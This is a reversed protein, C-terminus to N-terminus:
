TTFPPSGPRGVLRRAAPVGRRWKGLVDRTSGAGREDGTPPTVSASRAAAVRERHCTRCGRREYGDGRGAVYTNAEDLLHGHICHTQERRRESTLTPSDGRITNERSTVPELHSPNVCSRTRCLHDLQLGDPIPGILLEYVFRHAMVFRDDAWFLGYGNATTKARWPWCDNPGHRDVKTWFREIPDSAAESHRAKACQLECWAQVSPPVRGGALDRLADYDVEVTFYRGTVSV